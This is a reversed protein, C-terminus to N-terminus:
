VPLGKKRVKVKIPWNGGVRIIWDNRKFTRVNSNAAKSYRCQFVGYVYEEGPQPELYRFDDILAKAAGITGIGSFGALVILKVDRDTGFPRNAVFVLGCDKGKRIESKRFTEPDMYDAPVHIDKKVAIGPLNKTRKRALTSCTLSSQNVLKNLDPWCFGFPIRRRNDDSPNFPEADFFRSLLIETAANSKPSGIVICNESRARDLLEDTERSHDAYTFELDHEHLFDAVLNTATVDARQIKVDQENGKEDQTGRLFTCKGAALIQSWFEVPVFEFVASAEMQLYDATREIANRTIYRWDDNMMATLKQSSM